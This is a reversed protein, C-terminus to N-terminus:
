TVMGNTGEHKTIICSGDQEIEAVPFGVDVFKELPYRHFGSYNSGTIYGSCEILHGVLFAGALRDYDTDSWGYWWMAAGIVPSADAVRGCLIIDAGAELGKVIGRAGIYATCALVEDAKFKTAKHANNNIDQFTQPLTGREQLSSRVTGVM